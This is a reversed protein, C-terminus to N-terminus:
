TATMPPTLAPCAHLAACFSYPAVVHSNARLRLFFPTNILSHIHPIASPQAALLPAFSTDTLRAYLWLLAAILSGGPLAFVEFDVNVIIDQIAAGIRAAGLEILQKM